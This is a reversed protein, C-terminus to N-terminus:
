LANPKTAATRSTAGQARSGPSAIGVGVGGIGPAVGSPLGGSNAGVGSSVGGSGTGGTAVGGGWGNAISASVASALRLSHHLRCLAGPRRTEQRAVFDELELAARWPFM